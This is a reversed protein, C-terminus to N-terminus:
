KLERAKLYYLIEATTKTKLNALEQVIPCQVGNCQFTFLSTLKHLGPPFDTIRQNGSVVLERLKTLRHIDKPFRVLANNSIKLTQLKPYHLGPPDKEIVAEDDSGGQSNELEVEANQYEIQLDEIRNNCLYLFKLTSLNRHDYHSCHVRGEVLQTQFCEDEMAESSPEIGMTIGNSSVELTQLLSPYMSFTGLNTIANHALKLTHLLPALCPLGKPICSLRNESVDLFNLAFGIQSRHLDEPSCVDYSIYGRRFSQLGNDARPPGLISAFISQSSRPVPDPCPLEHIMNGNLELHKLLPATWMEMPVESIRNGSMILKSLNPLQFINPHIMMFLNNSLNLTQLDPCRWGLRYPDVGDTPYGDLLNERVDLVVLNPHMIPFPLQRLNVGSLTIRTLYKPDCKLSLVTNLVQPRRELYNHCAYSMISEKEQGHGHSYEYVRSLVNSPTNSIELIAEIMRFNGKHVADIMLPNQCQRLTHPNSKILLKPSSLSVYKKDQCFKLIEFHNRLYARYFHHISVYYLPVQRYHDGEPGVFLPQELYTVQLVPEVTNSPVELLVQVEQGSFLSTAEKCLNSDVM